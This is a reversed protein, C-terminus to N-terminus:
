QVSDWIDMDGPLCLLYLVQGTAVQLGDPEVYLDVEATHCHLLQRGGRFVSGEVTVAIAGETPQTSLRPKPLHWMVTCGDPWTDAIPLKTGMAQLGGGQVVGAGVNDIGLLEAVRVSAPRRCVEGIPGAQLVRGQELILVEDALMLAEDPDHTVLLMTRTMERQLQRLERIMDRRRPTDLASFPEDLLILGAQSSMARAMAVRQRQGLSLEAPKRDQLGDLGLRDLWYAAQGSDASRPFALQQSTSLHPFLGYDQPVYAIGRQEPSRTSLLHSGLQCQGGQIELVGAILKLTLSKGSGSTGLIALRRSTPQWAVQLHFQGVMQDFAFALLPGDEAAQSQGTPLTAIDAEIVPKRRPSTKEALLYFVGTVLLTPILLPLMAPLGQSGFLVYTYVPLSYPHYAVMVTAGFEGFARLWALLLGARIAPWALPLQVRIFRSWASHGFTAAVNNLEPDQAAFASRAAVILFPAAVFLEALVVGAFSDTLPAPFWQGLLGYPGLLFLLLIGSTLPPLALPLQVVFGLLRGAMNDYRALVYGLPVGCVAVLLCALTASGFSVGMASWLPGWDVNLWDAQRLQQLCALFPACLYLALLSALGFLLRPPRSRM